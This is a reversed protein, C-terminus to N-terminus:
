NWVRVDSIVPRHDSLYYNNDFWSEGVRYQEVEWLMDIGESHPNGAFQFDIRTYDDSTAKFGTFTALNGTRREPRCTKLMDDFAFTKSFKNTFRNRFEENLDGEYEEEGTLIKYAGSNKGSSQSNIDGVLFVPRGREFEYGARLKALAAALRRQGDSQDDLHLNIIVFDFGTQRNRFHCVTASRTSGAGPYKSPIEPTDSLWFTDWDLLEVKNPDYYVAQFEGAEKGDDRGVGVYKMPNLLRELDKVQRILAENVTFIDPRNFFVENAIGIRRTSWPVEEYHSFWSVESEFPVTKNLKSITEEISEGNPMADNRLNWSQIRIPATEFWPEDGIPHDDKGSSHRKIGLLVTQVVLIALLLKILASRTTRSHQGTLPTTESM